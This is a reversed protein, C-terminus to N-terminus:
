DGYKKKWYAKFEEQTMNEVTKPPINGSPTSSPNKTMKKAVDSAVKDTMAEKKKASNNKELQYVYYIEKTSWRGKRGDKTAFELFEKDNILDDLSVNPFAKRFDSMDEEFKKDEEEKAKAKETEEKIKKRNIEALRKGLDNVPDLGEDDLEKQIEYIKLDEADEIPERTYPNTKIVELKGELKADEKIKEERSKREREEKERRKRAFESNKKKTEEDEKSQTKAKESETSETSEDESDESEEEKGDTSDDDMLEEFDKPDFLEEDKENEM